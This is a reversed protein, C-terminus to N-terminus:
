EFLVIIALYVGELSEIEFDSGIAKNLRALQVTHIMANCGSGHFALVTPKIMKEETLM